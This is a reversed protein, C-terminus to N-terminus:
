RKHISKQSLLHGILMLMAIIPGLIILRQVREWPIVQYGGGSNFLYHVLPAGAYVIVMIMVEM